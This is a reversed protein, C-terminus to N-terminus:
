GKECKAATELHPTASRASVNGGQGTLPGNESINWAKLDRRVTDKWRLNPKRRPRKGDMKMEM